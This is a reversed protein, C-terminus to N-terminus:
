KRVYEFLAHVIGLIQSPAGTSVYNIDGIKIYSESVLVVVEEFNTCAGNWNYIVRFVWEEDFPADIVELALSQFFNNLHSIRHTVIVTEIGTDSRYDFKACVLLAHSFTYYSEAISHPGELQSYPFFVCLIGVLLYICLRRFRKKM